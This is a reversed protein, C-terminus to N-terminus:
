LVHTQVGALQEDLTSKLRHIDFPKELYGDAQFDRQAENCHRSKKYVGTTIIIKIGATVPDSKLLRCMERGDMRPMLADTLILAPLHKRAAVMGELGNEALVARYGLTALFWATIKRVIADDDIVLILPKAADQTMTEGTHEKSDTVTLYDM